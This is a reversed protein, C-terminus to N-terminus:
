PYMNSIEECLEAVGDAYEWGPIPAIKKLIKSHKLYTIEFEATPELEILRDLLDSKQRTMVGFIHKCKQPDFRFPTDEYFRFCQKKASSKPAADEMLERCFLVS